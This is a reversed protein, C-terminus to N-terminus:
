RPHHRARYRRTMKMRGNRPEGGADDGLWEARVDRAISCLATLGLGAGVLVAGILEVREVASQFADSQAVPHRQDSM